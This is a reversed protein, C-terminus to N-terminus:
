NMRQIREILKLVTHHNGILAFERQSDHNTILLFDDKHMLQVDHNLGLSYTKDFDAFRQPFCGDLWNEFEKGSIENKTFLYLYHGYLYPYFFENKTHILLDSVNRKTLGLWKNKERELEFFAVGSSKLEEESMFVKYEEQLFQYISYGELVLQKYFEEPEIEAECEISVPNEHGISHLLISYKKSDM